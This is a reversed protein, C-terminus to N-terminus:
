PLYLQNIIKNNFEDLIGVKVYYSCFAKTKDQEKKDAIIIKLDGNIFEYIDYGDFTHFRKIIYKKIFGFKNDTLENLTESLAEYNSSLLFVHIADRLSRKDNVNDDIKPQKWIYGGLEVCM